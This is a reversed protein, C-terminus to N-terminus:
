ILQKKQVHFIQLKEELHKVFKRTLFHLTLNYYKTHM